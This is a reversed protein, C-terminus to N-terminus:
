PYQPYSMVLQSLFQQHLLERSAGRPGIEGATNILVDIATTAYTGALWEIQQPNTVALTEVNVTGGWRHRLRDLEVAKDPHRACAIVEWGAAAYQRVFELGLGRSAGTIFVTAM